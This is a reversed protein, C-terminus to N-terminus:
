LVELMSPLMDYRDFVIDPAVGELDRKKVGNFLIAKMGVKKPGNIDNYPRDGVHAIEEPKLGLKKIILEFVVPSPKSRGVEDSFAFESFYRLMQHKELMGRIMRGPSVIADSIIALKYEKSIKELAEKIGEVAKPPTNYEMEEWYLTAEVLERGTPAVSLKRFIDSVRDIVKPTQYFDHWIQNFEQLNEEYCNAVDEFSLEKYKKGINLIVNIRDDRKSPLGKNKRDEEDSDDVVLTDWFDFTLAKITM